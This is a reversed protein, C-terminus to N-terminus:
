LLIGENVVIKGNVITYRVSGKLTMGDFPSNKSKSEFKSIDIKEEKEIDIITLDAVNGVDIIGKNISLLSSPNKSLLEAIRSLSIDFKHHLIDITLPITTEFGVLGNAANQFETNKEDNHHPAHDTAIIDITKDKLGEIVALRDVETKLPPNVKANTDFDLM